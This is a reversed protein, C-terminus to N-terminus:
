DCDGGPCASAAAGGSTLHKRHSVAGNKSLTEEVAAGFDILHRRLLTTSSRASLPRTARSSLGVRVVLAEAKAVIPFGRAKAKLSGREVPFLREGYPMSDVVSM